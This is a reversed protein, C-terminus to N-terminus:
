NSCCTQLAGPLEYLAILLVYKLCSSVFQGTFVIKGLCSMDGLLTGFKQANIKVFAPLCFNLPRWDRKSGQYVM